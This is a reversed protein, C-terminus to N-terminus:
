SMVCATDLLGPGLCPGTCLVCVHLRSWWVLDFLVWIHVSYGDEVAQTMGAMGSLVADAQGCVNRWFLAGVVVGRCPNGKASIM